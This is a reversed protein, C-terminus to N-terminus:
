NSSLFPEKEDKNKKEYYSRFVGHLTQSLDGRM